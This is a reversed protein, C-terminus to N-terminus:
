PRSVSSCIIIWDDMWWWWNLCLFLVLCITCFVNCVCDFILWWHTLFSYRVFTFHWISKPVITPERFVKRRKKKKEIVICINVLKSIAFEFLYKLIRIWFYIFVENSWNFDHGDYRLCRAVLTFYLFAHQIPIWDLRILPKTLNLTIEATSQLKLKTRRREHDIRWANEPLEHM